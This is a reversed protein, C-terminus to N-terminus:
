SDSVVDGLLIACAAAIAIVVWFVFLPASRTAPLEPSHGRHPSRFPVDNM